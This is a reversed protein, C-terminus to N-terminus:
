ITHAANPLMRYREVHEWNFGGARGKTTGTDYHPSPKWKVEVQQEKDVPCGITYINHNIWEASIDRLDSRISEIIEAATEPKGSAMDLVSRVHQLILDRDQQFSDWYHDDFLAETKARNIMGGKDLQGQMYAVRMADKIWPLLHGWPLPGDKLSAFGNRFTSYAQIVRNDDM